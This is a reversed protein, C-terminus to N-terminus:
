AARFRERAPGSGPQSSPPGRFGPGTSRRVPGTGSVGLYGIACSSAAQRLEGPTELARRMGNSYTMSLPTLSEGASALASTLSSAPIGAFILRMGNLGHGPVLYSHESQSLISFNESIM